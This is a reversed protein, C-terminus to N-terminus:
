DEDYVFGCEYCEITWFPATSYSCVKVDGGCFFCKGKGFVLVDECVEELANQYIDSNFFEKTEQSLDKVDIKSLILYEEIEKFIKEQIEKKDTFQKILEKIRM